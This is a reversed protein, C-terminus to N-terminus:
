RPTLSDCIKFLESDLSVSPVMQKKERSYVTNSRSQSVVKTPDIAKKKSKIVSPNVVAM